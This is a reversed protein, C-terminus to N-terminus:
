EKIKERQVSNEKINKTYQLTDENICKKSYNIQLFFTGYKLQKWM